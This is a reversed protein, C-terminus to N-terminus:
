FRLGYPFFWNTESEMQLINKIYRSFQLFHLSDFRSIISKKIGILYFIKIKTCMKTKSM